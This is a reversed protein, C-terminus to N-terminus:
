YKLPQSIDGNGPFCIYFPPRTPPVNKAFIDRWEGRLFVGRAQIEAGHDADPGEEEEERGGAAGVQPRGSGLLGRQLCAGYVEGQFGLLLFVQYSIELM